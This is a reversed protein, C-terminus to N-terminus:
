TKANSKGFSQESATRASHCPKCLPRLNSWRLRLEPAQVVSVVHDVETAPNLCRGATRGWGVCIRHVGLFQRRVARWDADYGREGPTPRRADVDKQRAAERAEAMAQHLSCRGSEVITSCGGASCIRMARRAM